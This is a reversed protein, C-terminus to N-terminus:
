LLDMRLKFFCWVMNLAFGFRLKFFVLDYKIRNISALNATKIWIVKGGLRFLPSSSKKEWM